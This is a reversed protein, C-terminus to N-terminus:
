NRENVHKYWQPREGFYRPERQNSARAKVPVALLYRSGLWSIANRLAVSYDEVPLRSREQTLLKM